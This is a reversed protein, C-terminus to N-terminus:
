AKILNLVYNRLKNRNVLPNKHSHNFFRKGNVIIIPPHWTSRFLCYIWNDLWPKVVLEVSKGKFEKKMLSDLISNTLDCENCHTKIKFLGWKGAWYFHEIIVKAM